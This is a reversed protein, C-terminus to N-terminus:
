RVRESSIEHDLYFRMNGRADILRLRYASMGGFRTPEPRGVLRMVGDPTSVFEGAGLKAEASSRKTRGVM